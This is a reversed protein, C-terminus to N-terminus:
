MLDIVGVVVAAARLRLLQEGASLVASFKIPFEASETRSIKRVRDDGVVAIIAFHIQEEVGGGVAHHVDM